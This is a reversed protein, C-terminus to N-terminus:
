GGLNVKRELKGKGPDARASHPTKLYGLAVSRGSEDITIGGLEGHLLQEADEQDGPRCDGSSSPSRRKGRM